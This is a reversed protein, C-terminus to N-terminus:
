TSKPILGLCCVVRRNAEARGLLAPLVRRLVLRLEQELDKRENPWDHKSCHDLM